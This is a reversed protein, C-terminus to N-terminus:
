VARAHMAIGAVAGLFLLFCAAAQVFFGPLRGKAAKRYGVFYWVRGGIWVLGLAAAAVDNLYIACLWLPALFTPMWELTNVHARFIREFDPNGTTAPLSVNFRVHALAVRTALFFYFAVALLTVISTYYPM